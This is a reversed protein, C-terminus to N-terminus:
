RYDRGKGRNRAKYTSTLSHCNPCIITINEPLCNKWNGDIHEIELAPLEADKYKEGWGCRSCKLDHMQILYKRITKRPQFSATYFTEPTPNLLWNDIVAKSKAAAQCTLSCYKGLCNKGIKYEIQCYLCNTM